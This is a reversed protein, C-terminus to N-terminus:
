MSDQPLNTIVNILVNQSVSIEIFNVNRPSSCRPKSQTLFSAIREDRVLTLAIQLSSSASIQLHAGQNYKNGLSKKIFVNLQM